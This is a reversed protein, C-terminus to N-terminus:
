IPSILRYLMVMQRKYGCCSQHGRLKYSEHSCEPLTFSCLKQVSRSLLDDALAIVTYSSCRASRAGFLDLRAAFASPNPLRPSIPSIACSLRPSNVAVWQVILNVGCVFAPSYDLHRDARKAIWLVEPNLQERVAGIMHITKQCRMDTQRFRSSTQSAEGNQETAAHWARCKRAGHDLKVSCGKASRKDAGQRESTKHM